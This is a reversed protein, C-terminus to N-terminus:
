GLHLLALWAAAIGLTALTVAPVNSVLNSLGVILVFLWSPDRADIGHDGLTEIAREMAGTEELAHNVVFLGAFLVLLQWDVLGLMSRSHMKRSCLLIGAGALAALADSTPRLSRVRRSVDVRDGDLHRRPRPSGACRRRASLWLLLAGAARRDPHEASQRHADGGLGRQRRLGPRSPLPGGVMHLAIGTRDLQLRPLRGLIM